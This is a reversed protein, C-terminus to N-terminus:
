RKARGLTVLDVTSELVFAATDIVGHLLGGVTGLTADIVGRKETQQPAPVSEQANTTAPTEASAPAELQNVPMDIVEQNQLKVIARGHKKITHQIDTVQEQLESISEALPAISKSVSLEIMKSLDDVSVSVTQQQASVPRKKPQKPAPQSVTEEELEEFEDLDDIEVTPLVDQKKVTM